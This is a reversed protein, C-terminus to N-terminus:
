NSSGANNNNRVDMRGTMGTFNTSGVMNTALDKQNYNDPHSYTWTLPKDAKFPFEYEEAPKVKIM